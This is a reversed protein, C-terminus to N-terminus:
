VACLFGTHVYTPVCIRRLLRSGGAERARLIINYIKLLYDTSHSVSCSNWRSDSKNQVPPLLFNHEFRRKTVSQRILHEFKLIIFARLYGGISSMCCVVYLLTWQHKNMSHFLIIISEVFQWYQRRIDTKTIHKSIDDYVM